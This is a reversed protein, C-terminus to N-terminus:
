YMGVFDKSSLLHEVSVVHGEQDYPQTETRRMWGDHNNVVEICKAMFDNIVRYIASDQTKRNELVIIKKNMINVKEM